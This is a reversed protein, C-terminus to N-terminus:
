IVAFITSLSEAIEEACEKLVMPYLGDPGPSKDSHLGKLKKLVSDRSFCTAPVSITAPPNHMTAEPPTSDQDDIFVSKFFTCLEDAAEKDCETVSGDTKELQTVQVKVTQTRRMYSYFKKPKDKFSSIIKRRHVQKEDRVMRNVKNQIKKYANYNCLKSVASIEELGSKKDQALEEDKIVDL